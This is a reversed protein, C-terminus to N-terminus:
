HKLIKTLAGELSPYKWVFGAAQLKAPIVKQGKLLIDSMEGLALKLVFGPVPAWCPRHLTQALNRCFDKTTVIDPSSLNVAGTLRENTLAFLIAQAVDERHIWPFWQRGSGFWGGAFLKFPLLMRTLAGGGEDLVVGTRTCIVRVGFQEARYAEREWDVCLRALFDNGAPDSEAVDGEPVDGYYGVASASIMIKPKRSAQAIANVLARTPDIRSSMLVMKRQQTWRGGGISEGALNIVADSVELQHMWPGPSKGDWSEISVASSLIPSRRPSRSLLVITHGAQSFAKIVAAGIFGTGGSLIIRMPIAGGLFFLMSM